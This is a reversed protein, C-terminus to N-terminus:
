FLSPGAEEGLDIDVNSHRASGDADIADTNLAAFLVRDTMAELTTYPPLDLSFFCTHAVPLMRNVDGTRPPPKRKIVFTDGAFGEISSAVCLCLCCCLRRIIVISSM